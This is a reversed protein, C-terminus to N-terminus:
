VFVTNLNLESQTGYVTIMVTSSVSGAVGTATLTVKMKGISAPTYAKSGTADFVVDPYTSLSVSTANIAVWSLITEQGLFIPTPNFDASIIPPSTWVQTAPEYHWGIGVSLGDINVIYHGDPPSWDDGENYAVGNDCINTAADIVAYTSM